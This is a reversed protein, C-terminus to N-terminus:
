FGDVFDVEDVGEDITEQVESDEGESDWEDDYLSSFKVVIQDYDKVDFTGRGPSFNYCDVEEKKVLEGYKYFYVTIGAKIGM